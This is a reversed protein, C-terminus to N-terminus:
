NIEFLKRNQKIYNILSVKLHVNQM